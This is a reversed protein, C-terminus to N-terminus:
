TKAVRWFWLLCLVGELGLFALLVPTQMKGLWRGLVEIQGNAVALAGLGVFVVGAAAVAWPLTSQPAGGNVPLRAVTRAAFGAPATADVPKRLAAELSAELCAECSALHAELGPSRDVGELWAPIREKVQECSLVGDPM